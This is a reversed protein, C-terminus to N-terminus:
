LKTLLILSFFSIFVLILGTGILMNREISKFGNSFHKFKENFTSVQVDIDSWRKMTLDKTQQMDFKIIDIEKQLGSLIEVYEQENIKKQNQM